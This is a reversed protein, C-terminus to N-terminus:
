FQPLLQECHKGVLQDCIIDAYYLIASLLYAGYCFVAYQSRTRVLIDWPFGLPTYQYRQSLSNVALSRRQRCVIRCGFYLLVLLATRLFHPSFCFISTTFIFYSNLFVSILLLLSMIRYFVYSRHPVVIVTPLTSAAKLNWLNRNGNLFSTLECPSERVDRCISYIRSFGVSAMALSM